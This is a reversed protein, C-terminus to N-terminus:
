KERELAQEFESWKVIRCVAPQANPAIEVLDLGLRHAMKVAEAVPFIGQSVNDTGVVRVFPGIIQENIRFRPRSRQNDFNSDIM